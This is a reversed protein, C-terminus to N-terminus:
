VAHRRGDSIKKCEDASWPRGKNWSIGGTPIAKPKGRQWDQYCIRSYFKADENAIASPKRWFEKDCQCAFTAGKKLSKTIKAVHEQSRVLGHLGDGGDTLNFLNCGISRGHDIWHWEREVWNDSNAAELVRMYAGCLNVGDVVNM